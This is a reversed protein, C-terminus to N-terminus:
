DFLGQPMLEDLTDGVRVVSSTPSLSFIGWLKNARPILVAVEFGGDQTAYVHLCYDDSKSAYLSPPCARGNDAMQQIYAARGADWDHDVIQRRVDDSSFEGLEDFSFDAHQITLEM